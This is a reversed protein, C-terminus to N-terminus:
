RAKELKDFYAAATAYDAFTNLERRGGIFSDVYYEVRNTDTHVNYGFLANDNGCLRAIEGSIVKSM